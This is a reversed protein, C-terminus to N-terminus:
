DNARRLSNQDSDPARQIPWQNVVDSLAYADALGLGFYKNRRLDLFIVGQRTPCVHVHQPLWYNRDTSELLSTLTGVRSTCDDPGSHTDYVVDARSSHHAEAGNSTM